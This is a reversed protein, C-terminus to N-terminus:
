ADRRAGASPTVEFVSPARWGRDAFASTVDRRVAAIRDVPALVVASGGFGGGTMRAGIAGSERAVDVVVDLEECSVEYDDRLSVHSAVMLPGIADWDDAWLSEVFADVLAVESVV